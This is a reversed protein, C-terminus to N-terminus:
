TGIRSVSKKKWLWSIQRSYHTSLNCQDSQLGDREHDKPSLTSPWQSTKSHYHFTSSSILSSINTLPLPSHTHSVTPDDDINLNIRLTTTKTPHQWAKSKRQSFFSSLLVRFLDQNHQTHDVGSTSDNTPTGIFFFISCPRLSSPWQPPLFMLCSLFLGLPFTIINLVTTM